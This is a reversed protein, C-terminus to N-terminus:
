SKRAPSDTDELASKFGRIGEGLSKGLSALKPGYILLAIGFIIALEPIGIKGGFV